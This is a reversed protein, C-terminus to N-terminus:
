ASKVTGGVMATLRDMIDKLVESQAHLQEAAAASEEANAATEQTVREMQSIAHGIQEIGRCQELGGRNVEDVLAKVRDADETIAHIAKAVQDVKTKGDNSKAISEEILEATDRAAQACRQALNRVEDAVVAFGMGAEGARAAEVAANLALINTQFAIEDIVKIINSIKSSQTSIEAMAVVTEGLSRNTVVAREQSHAMLDAAASGKETNKLAMSNIEGSSASTEELSAAQRSCGEALLQSSSAVHSAAGSVEAAARGLEIATTRLRRTSRRMAFTVALGM